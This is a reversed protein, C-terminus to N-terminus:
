YPRSALEFFRGWGSLSLGYILAAPVDQDIQWGLVQETRWRIRSYKKGAELPWLSSANPLSQHNDDSV